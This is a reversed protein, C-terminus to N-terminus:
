WISFHLLGDVPAYDDTLVPVDEQPIPDMAYTHAYEELPFRLSHQEQLRHARSLVTQKPVRARDQTAIAIINSVGRVPFVYTQAFETGLTKLMSRFLKSDSGRVSGIINAVVIGRPTLKRKLEQLFERTTLHFPIADAYYADLFVMDYQHPTKNVFIRGDVAQVNMRENEKFLFYRKAVTIVEPDLEAIDIVLSPYDRHFRRPASGGGLGIFLARRPDDAFALALHLYRTYEFVMRDPDKLDLASQRLRDFRLTREKGDENVIIHHYQSDKEYLTVAASAPYVGVFCAILVGAVVIRKALRRRAFSSILLLLIALAVLAVGLSRLISRVGITQILYFATLLAGVISGATSIAYMSGATNGITALSSAALKIAYPSTTGMFVSPLFFLSLTALLPNLRPGFDVSAITRNVAPALLPLTAVLIGPLLILVAMTSLDPRRDALFGGLYYGLTLGALFTSILSGWVFISSGFYPALVRSGVIELGLLVAGVVFVTLRLLSLM